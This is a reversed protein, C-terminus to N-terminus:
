LHINPNAIYYKALAIMQIGKIGGSLSSIKQGHSPVKLTDDTVTSTTASDNSVKETKEETIPVIVNTGNKTVQQEISRILQESAQWERLNGEVGNRLRHEYMSWVGPQTETAPRDPIVDLTYVDVIIRHEDGTTKDKVVTVAGICPYSYVVMMTSRIEGAPYENKAIEISKEMAETRNFQYPDFTIDNFSHGLTKNAFIDITGIINGNKYVSFQYFLKQGNIDYLELPKPDISAGTWNEFNPANAAIFNIVYANAHKFAEESTVSYNNETEANVSPIMVMGALLVAFLLTRTGFEKIAM